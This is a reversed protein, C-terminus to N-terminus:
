EPIAGKAPGVEVADGAAEPLDDWLDLAKFLAPAQFQGQLLAHEAGLLDKLEKGLEACLMVMGLHSPHLGDSQLLDDARLTIKEEGVQLSRPQEKAEKVFQALPFVQM